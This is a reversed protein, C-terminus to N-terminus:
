YNANKTLWDFLVIGVTVTLNFDNNLGMCPISVKSGAINLIENPVGSKESGFFLIPYRPYRFTRLDETKLTSRREFAIINRGDELHYALFEELSKWKVINGKEYALTSLAGKKYWTGCEILHIKKVLFNHCTRIIGGINFPNDSGYVAVEVPIRVEDLAARIEEKTFDELNPRASM